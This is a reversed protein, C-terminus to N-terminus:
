QTCDPPVSVSVGLTLVPVEPRAPASRQAVPDAEFLEILVGEPDRVCVRRSGVSGMPESLVPSGLAHLRDLTEDFNKLHLALTSYGIDCPRWDAPLKRTEPREFQFLELQFFSQRDGLWWCSSRAGKVGQVKEALYGRFANTGSCPVFGFAGTYWAHTRPLDVVSLAIQNLPPGSM